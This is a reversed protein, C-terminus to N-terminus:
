VNEFNMQRSFPVCNRVLECNEAIKEKIMDVSVINTFIWSPFTNPPGSQNVRENNIHWGILLM